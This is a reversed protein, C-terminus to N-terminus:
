RVISIGTGDGVPLITTLLRPETAIRRNFARLADTSADHVGDAVQGKWLLNDCVIMAGSELKPLLEDLYSGYERKVCDIFVFDFPGALNPIVDLAAGEHFIVTAELAAEAVFNKAVALTGRDIEITEIVCEAGAARGMVIVSYGINTGVELIRRPRKAALLVRMLQAVEPDAIPQGNEAAYQEIRDLLAERPPLISDLYAAQSRQLLADARDKM